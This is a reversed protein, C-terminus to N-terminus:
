HFHVENYHKSISQWSNSEPILFITKWKFFDIHGQDSRLSKISWGLDFWHYRRIDRELGYLKQKFCKETNIM